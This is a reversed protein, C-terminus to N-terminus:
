YFPTPEQWKIGADSLLKKAKESDKPNLHITAHYSEVSAVTKYIISIKNEMLINYAKDYDKNMYAVRIPISVKTGVM